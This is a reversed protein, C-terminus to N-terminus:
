WRRWGPTTACSLSPIEGVYDTIYDGIKKLENLPGIYNWTRRFIQHIERETIAADTHWRAPLGEGRALGALLTASNEAIDSM